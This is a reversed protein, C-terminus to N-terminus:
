CSFRILCFEAGRCAQTQLEFNINAGFEQAWAAYETNCIRTGVKEALNERGSKVMFDLWPCKEIIIRFGRGDLTKEAEFTFGEVALKTTFCQFLAEMGKDMKGLARLERAQIKAMVEWVQNDIELAKDFGYQEEVKMFWMGDVATYSRYFFQAIQKDELEFM